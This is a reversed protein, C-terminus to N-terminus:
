DKGCPCPGTGIRFAGCHRCRGPKAPKEAKTPRGPLRPRGGPWRLRGFLALIAMGILFFTAIKVLV